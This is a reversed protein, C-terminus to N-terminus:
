DCDLPNRCLEGVQKEAEAAEPKIAEVFKPRREQHGDGNVALYLISLHYPRHGNQPFKVLMITSPVRPETVEEPPPRQGRRPSGEVRITIGNMWVVYGFKYVFVIEGRESRLSGAPRDLTFWGQADTETEAESSLGAHTFWRGWVVAGAVPQGSERDVVRARLPEGYSPGAALCIVLLALATARM